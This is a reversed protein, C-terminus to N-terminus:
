FKSVNFYSIHHVFSSGPSKTYVITSFDCGSVLSLRPLLHDLAISSIYEFSAPITNGDWLRAQSRVPCPYPQLINPKLFGGFCLLPDFHHALSEFAYRLKIFNQFKTLNQHIVPDTIPEKRSDARIHPVRGEARLRKTEPPFEAKQSNSVCSLFPGLFLGTM